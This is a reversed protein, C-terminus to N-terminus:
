SSDWDESDDWQVETIKGRRHIIIVLVVSILILFAASGILLWLWPFDNGSIRDMYEERTLVEVTIVEEEKSTRGSIDRVMLKVRYDGLDTFNHIVEQSRIWGTDLGDDIILRYDLVRNDDEGSLFFRVPGSEPVLTRNSKLEPSPPRYDMGIYGTRVDERNGAKDIAYYKITNMGSELDISGTYRNFNGENLSYYVTEPSDVTTLSKFEISPPDGWFWDESDPSRDTELVTRPSTIDVKLNIPNGENTNGAQDTVRPTIRFDGNSLIVPGSYDNVESRMSYTIRADTDNTEIFLIVEEDMWGDSVAPETRVSISPPTTDIRIIEGDHMTEYGTPSMAWYEIDWVGDSLTFPGDYVKREDEISYYIVEARPSVLELTVDSKYYGNDGDPKEPTKVIQPDPPNLVVDFSSEKSDGENGAMDVAWYKILHSGEGLTIPGTYEKVERDMEYFITAGEESDMTITPQSVYYGNMGDPQSPDTNFDVLPPTTDVKLALTRIDERPGDPFASYFHLTNDGEPVDITGDYLAFDDTTGWRYYTLADVHTSFTIDPSTTYYGNDGNPDPPDVTILTEPPTLRIKKVTINYDAGIIEGSPIAYLTSYMEGFGSLEEISETVGDTSINKSWIVSGSEVGLLTTHVPGSSKQVVSLGSIADTFKHYYGAYRSEVSRLITAPYEPTNSEMTDIGIDVLGNEYLGGGYSPDDVLNAGKVGLHVDWSNSDYGRDNLVEDISALSRLDNKVIESITEKGGFHDALYSVYSYAMGYDAITEYYNPATGEDWELLDNDPLIELATIHSQLAPTSPGLTVRISLDAMGEDLWTSEDPDIDYHLLHQFEHAVIEDVVGLDQSDLYLDDSHFPSRIFYGGVGNEGDGFDYIRFEISDPPNDPHFWDVATPYIDTDFLDALDELLDNSVSESSAVYIDSHLGSYELDWSTPRPNTDSYGFQKTTGDMSERLYRTGDIPQDTGVLQAAGMMYELHRFMSDDVEEPGDDLLAPVVTILVFAVAIERFM